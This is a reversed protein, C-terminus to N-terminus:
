YQLGKHLMSHVGQPQEKTGGAAEWSSRSVTSHVPQQSPLGAGSKMM